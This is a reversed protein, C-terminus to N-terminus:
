NVLKKSDSHFERNKYQCTFSILLYFRVMYCGSSIKTKLTFLWQFREREGFNPVSKFLNLQAPLKCCFSNEFILITM